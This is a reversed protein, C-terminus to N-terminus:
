RTVSGDLWPSICHPGLGFNSEGCDEDEAGSGPSQRAAAISTWGLSPLINRPIALVNLVLNAAQVVTVRAVGIAVDRVSPGRVRSSRQAMVRSDRSGVVTASDSNGHM